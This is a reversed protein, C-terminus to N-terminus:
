YNTNELYVRTKLHDIYAFPNNKFIKPDLISFGYDMGYCIWELEKINWKNKQWEEQLVELESFNGEIGNSVRWYKSFYGFCKGFEVPRTGGFTM